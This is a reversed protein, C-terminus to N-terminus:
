RMSTRLGWQAEKQKAPCDEERISSVRSLTKPSHDGSSGDRVAARDRRRLLYDLGDEPVGAARLRDAVTHRASHMVM